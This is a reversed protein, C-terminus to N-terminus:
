FKSIGAGASLAISSKQKFRIMIAHNFNGDFDMVGIAGGYFESKNKM